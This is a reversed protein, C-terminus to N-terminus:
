SWKFPNKFSPLFASTLDKAPSYSWAAIWDRMCPRMSSFETNMNEKVVYSYCFLYKLLTPSQRALHGKECSSYWKKEIGVLQGKQTLALAAKSPMPAFYVTTSSSVSGSPVDIAHRRSVRQPNSSRELSMALSIAVVWTRTNRVNINNTSQKMAQEYSFCDSGFHGIKNSAGTDGSDPNTTLKYTSAIISGHTTEELKISSALELTQQLTDTGQLLLVQCYM